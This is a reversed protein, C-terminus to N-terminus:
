LTARRRTWWEKLKLFMFIVFVGSFVLPAISAMFILAMNGSYIAIALPVMVFCIFTLLMVIATSGYM